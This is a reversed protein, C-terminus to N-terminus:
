QSGWGILGIFVALGFQEKSMAYKPTGILWVHYAQPDVYFNMGLTFLTGYVGLYYNKVCASVDDGIARISIFKLATCIMYGAAFALGVLLNGTDSKSGSPGGSSKGIAVVLVVGIFGFIICIIERISLKEGMILYSAVLTVFIASMLAPQSISLPLYSVSQQALILTLYGLVTRSVVFLRTRGPISMFLDYGFYNFDIGKSKGYFYSYNAMAFYNFLTYYQM